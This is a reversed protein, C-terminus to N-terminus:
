GVVVTGYSNNDSDLVTSVDCPSSSTSTSVAAKGGNTVINSAYNAMAGTNGETSLVAAINTNSSLPTGKYTAILGSAFAINEATTSPLSAGSFVM